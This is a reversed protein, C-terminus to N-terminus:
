YQKISLKNIFDKVLDQVKNVLKENDLTSPNWDISIIKFKNLKEYLYKIYFINNKAKNAIYLASEKSNGAKLYKEFLFKPDFEPSDNGFTGLEINFERLYRFGRESGANENIRLGFILNMGGKKEYDRFGEAAVTLLAHKEIYWDLIEYSEDETIENNASLVEYVSRLEGARELLRYKEKVEELPSM